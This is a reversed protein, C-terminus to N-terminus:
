AEHTDEKTPIQDPRSNRALWVRATRWFAACGTLLGVVLAAIPLWLGIDYRTNLWAALLTMAVPPFVVSLGLQSVMALGTLIDFAASQKM